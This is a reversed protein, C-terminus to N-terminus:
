KSIPYYVTEKHNMLLAMRRKDTSILLSVSGSFGNIFELGVLQRIQDRPLKALTFWWALAFQCRTTRPIEEEVLVWAIGAWLGVGIIARMIMVALSLTINERSADTEETYFLCVDELTWKAPSRNWWRSVLNTPLHHNLPSIPAMSWHSSILLLCDLM